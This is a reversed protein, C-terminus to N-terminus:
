RKRIRKTKRRTSAPKKSLFLRTKKRRCKSKYNKKVFENQREIYKLQKLLPQIMKAISDIQTHLPQVIRGVREMQAAHKELLKSITALRIAKPTTSPKKVGEQPQVETEPTESEAM